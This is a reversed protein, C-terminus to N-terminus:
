RLGHKVVIYFVQVALVQDFKLVIERRTKRVQVTPVAVIVRLNIYM